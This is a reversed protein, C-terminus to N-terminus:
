APSPGADQALPSDGFLELCRGQMSLPAETALYLVAGAVEEPSMAPIAGPLGVQLMPTDVSGPAVSAVLVGSGRLEEALSQTFGLVGWKSACYASLGATGLTGSISAINIIRGRRRALMGPLLTRTCLFVARLNVAMIQDWLASPTETVQARSVQGANNILVTVPGLKRELAGFALAIQSEDRLDAVAYEVHAPGAAELTSKAQLLDDEGRAILSVAAGRAHALAACALGIGRSGGTIIFHEDSSGQDPL